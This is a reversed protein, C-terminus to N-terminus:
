PAAPPNLRVNVKQRHQRNKLHVEFNQLTEGPGPTYHKGPCDICKIRFEFVGSTANKRLVAEFIDDPYRTQLIEMSDSLWEPTFLPPHQAPPASPAVRAPSAQPPSNAKAQPDSSESRTSQPPEPPAPPASRSHAGGNMKVRQALPSESASSATSVPSVARDPGEPVASPREQPISPPEPESNPPKSPGPTEMEADEDVAQSKLREDAATSQPRKRKSNYKAQEEARILGLHYEASSNYQVPRPRRHRHWYKGCTGCQSKDGLPGKRRGVAISEPCGCNSCHWVGDIMNAHQGDAYEKEKAERELEKARKATLVVKSGQRDIGSSSPAPLDNELPPPLTSIDAATSPTPAKVNARPRLVSAPYSPPKFLGKPKGGKMSPTPAIPTLPASHTQPLITTGNESAVMNAITLSAAAAAARRSTPAAAAAALALAAPSVEPFGIAPTRFTKPPERDPLAVGRRGRTTKRKRRALEKERDKENKEIESESLYQLIPTFAEVQEMSRAGSVLSPLLSMRLDDDQVASGDSPHGVLFLSKQYIQVQERISHAIATKFEGGLGLDKCYVEAFQEPTPDSNELDWEFQDELKVSGVIVDVKVLIRMEEHMLSEDEEFDDVAMPAEGPLRLPGSRDVAEDKVIKRRKRSRVDAPPAALRYLARSRVRTRWADWWATDDEGIKGRLVEDEEDIMAGDEGFTASHAKYDSLQEQISKTIVAHYSSALAYDDVISQAFVEPTVIPDNLNWVFTDRMKHHEVDFELRIPVLQEPRNADEDPVRRPVRLGERKGARRKDRVERERSSKLGTLVFKEARRRREDLAFDKEWWARPASVTAKAEEAVRERMRRFRAEYAKDARMWEQVQVVEEARLPPIAGESDALPVVSVRTVKPDLKVTTPLPPLQPIIKTVTAPQPAPSGSSKGNTAAPAVKTPVGGIVGPIPGATPRKPGAISPNGDQGMGIGMSMGAIGSMSAIPSTLGIPGSGAVAGSPVANVGMGPILNTTNVNLSAVQAGGAASVGGRPLVPAADDRWGCGGHAFRLESGFASVTWVWDHPGHKRHHGHGNHWHQERHADVPRPRSHRRYVSCIPSADNSECPCKAGTNRVSQTERRSPAVWSSTHLGPGPCHAYVWNASSIPSTRPHQQQQQQHQQLQQSQQRPTQPPHHGTATPPRSPVKQPHGDSGGMSQGTGPRQPMGAPSHPMNGHHVPLPAAPARPSGQNQPQSHGGSPTAARQIQNQSTNPRSGTATGPRPSPGPFPGGHQQQQPMHPHMGHGHLSSATPPRPPISSPPPMMGGGSQPQPAHPSSAGQSQSGPGPTPTPSTQLQGQSLRHAHASFSASSPPRQMQPHQQQQQQHQQQQQQQQLMQMQQMQAPTMGGMGGMGGGGMNMNMGQMGGGMQAMMAARQMHLAKMQPNMQALQQMQSASPFGGQGQQMSLNPTTPTSSTPSVQSMGSVNPLSSSGSTPSTMSSGGMGMNMGRMGNMGGMGMGNVNGMGGMLNMGGGGGGGGLAAPNIATMGNMGGGGGMTMQQQQQQQQLFQAPNMGMGIGGGGSMGMGGTGGGTMNMGAGGMNMNMSMRQAQAQAHMQQYQAMRGNMTGMGGMGNMLAAPNMGGGGQQFMAPNMGMGGGGQGGGMSRMAHMQQIQQPSYGPQPTGNGSGNFGGALFAPDIGQSMDGQSSANM